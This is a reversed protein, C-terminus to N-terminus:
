RNKLCNKSSTGGARNQKATGIVYRGSSGTSTIYNSGIEQYREIDIQLYDTHETLLEAPYRLVGGKYKKM